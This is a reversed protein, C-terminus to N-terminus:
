QTIKKAQEKKKKEAAKAAKKAEKSLEEKEFDAQIERQKARMKAAFGKKKPEETGKNKKKGRISKIEIIYIGSVMAKVECKTPLDDFIADDCIFNITQPGVKAKVIPLKTGRYRKPAQDMVVKPLGADKMKMIKKDIILMSTMQAAERMQEKQAMQKKQMRKGLFYLAVFAAIIIVLVILSVILPKTM